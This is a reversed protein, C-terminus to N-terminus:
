PFPVFFSGKNLPFYFDSLNNYLLCSFKASLLVFLISVFLLSSFLHLPDVWCIWCSNCFFVFSFCPLYNNFLLISIEWFQLNCSDLDTSHLMFTICAVIYNKHKRIAVNFFYLFLHFKNKIIIENLKYMWINGSWNTIM